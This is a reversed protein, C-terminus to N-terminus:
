TRASRHNERCRAATAMKASHLPEAGLAVGLFILGRNVPPAKLVGSGSDCYKQVLRATLTLSATEAYMCGGASLNAIEALISRGIQDIVDDGIGAVLGLGCAAQCANDRQRNKSTLPPVREDAASLFILPKSIEM